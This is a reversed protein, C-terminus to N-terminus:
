QFQQQKATINDNQEKLSITLLKLEQSQQNILSYSEDQVKRSKSTCIDNQLQISDTINSIHSTITVIHQEMTNSLMANQVLIFM